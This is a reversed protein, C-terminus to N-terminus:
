KIFRYRYVVITPNHSAKHDTSNMYKWLSANWRGTGRNWWCARTWHNSAWVLIIPTMDCPLHASFRKALSQLPVAIICIPRRYRAKTRGLRWGWHPLLWQLGITCSLIRDCSGCVVNDTCPIYGVFSGNWNVNFPSPIGYMHRHLWISWARRLNV